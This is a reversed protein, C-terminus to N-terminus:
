IGNSSENLTYTSLAGSEVLEDLIEKIQKRNEETLEKLENYLQLKTKHMKKEEISELHM